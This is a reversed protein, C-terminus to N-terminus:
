AQVKTKMEEFQKAVDESIHKGAIRDESPFIESDHPVELGADVVGKLASFIVTGKRATYLGIDLNAKNIGKKKAKAACLMGVLYAITTNRGYGKWGFKKIEKSSAAVLTKDGDPNYQIIQVTINKLSKRIVLRLERSKLLTLRKKYDTKGERKRRYPQFKKRKM